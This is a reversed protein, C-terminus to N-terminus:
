FSLCIYEGCNCTIELEKLTVDVDDTDDVTEHQLEVDINTRIISFGNESLRQEFYAVKGYTEPEIEVRNGCNKCEFTIKM